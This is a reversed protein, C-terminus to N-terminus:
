LHQFSVPGDAAISGVLSAPSVINAGGAVPICSMVVSPVNTRELAGDGLCVFSDEWFASHM